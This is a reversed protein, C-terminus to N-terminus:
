VMGEAIYDLIGRVHVDVCLRLGEQSKLFAVDERNDQFFNETLVAPCATHRLIYFDEEFDRAYRDANSYRRVRLPAKFVDEAADILCAALKDADTVGKTTFASWGRATKWQSGSGPAANVHVSVLLVNEKGLEDCLANVRRVRETLAIDRDEPVLLRADHGRACLAAVIGRACKRTWEWEKFYFPSDKQGQLADPSCKGATNVGHGTDILIVQKSM